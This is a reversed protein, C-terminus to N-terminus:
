RNKCIVVLLLALTVTSALGAVLMWRVGWASVLIIEWFYSANRVSWFDSVEVM